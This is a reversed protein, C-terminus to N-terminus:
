CDFYYYSYYYGQGRSTGPSIGGKVKKKPDVKDKDAESLYPSLSFSEESTPGVTSTGPSLVPTAFEYGAFASDVGVSLPVSSNPVSTTRHHAFPQTLLPLPPPTTGSRSSKSGKSSTTKATTFSASLSIVSHNSSSPAQIPPTNPESSSLDMSPHPHSQSEPIEQQQYEDPTGHGLSDRSNSAPSSTRPQQTLVPIQSSSPEPAFSRKHRLSTLDAPVPPVPPISSDPDVVVERGSVRKDRWFTSSHRPLTTSDQRTLGTRNRSLRHDNSLVFSNGILARALTTGSVSSMDDTSIASQPISSLRMHSKHYM